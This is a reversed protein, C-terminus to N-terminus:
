SIKIITVFDNFDLSDNLEVSSPKVEDIARNVFEEIIEKWKVDINDERVFHDIHKNIM